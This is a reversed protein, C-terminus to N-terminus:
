VGGTFAIWAERRFCEAAHLLQGEQLYARSQSEWHTEQPELSRLLCSVKGTEPPGQAAWETSITGKM